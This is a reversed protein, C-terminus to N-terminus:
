ALLKCARECSFRWGSKTRSICVEASHMGHKTLCAVSAMVKLTFDGERRVGQRVLGQSTVWLFKEVRRLLGFADEEEGVIRALNYKISQVGGWYSWVSSFL